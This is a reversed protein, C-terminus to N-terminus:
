ISFENLDITMPRDSDFQQIDRLNSSLASETRHVM